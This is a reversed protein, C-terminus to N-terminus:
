GAHLVRAGRPCVKEALRALAAVDGDASRAAFGMSTAADATAAGVCLAPPRDASAAAYARVGNASTFAVWDPAPQTPPAEVPVIRLLPSIVHAPTSGLDRALDALLKYAQDEPRTM